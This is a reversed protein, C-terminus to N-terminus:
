QDDSNGTGFSFGLADLAYAIKALQSLCHLQKNRIRVNIREFDITTVPLTFVGLM